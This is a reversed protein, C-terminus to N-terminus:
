ADVKRGHRKNVSATYARSQVLGMLERQLRTAVKSAQRAVLAGCTQDEACRKAQGMELVIDHAQQNASVESRIAKARDMDSLDAASAQLAAQAFHQNQATANPADTGAQGGSGQGNDNAQADDSQGNQDDAAN